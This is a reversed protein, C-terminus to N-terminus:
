KKGSFSYTVQRHPNTHKCSMTNGRIRCERIKYTWGGVSSTTKGKADVCSQDVCYAVTEKEMGKGTNQRQVTCTSKCTLNPGYRFEHRHKGSYRAGPSQCYASGVFCLMIVLCCLLFCTRMISRWKDFEYWRCYQRHLMKAKM